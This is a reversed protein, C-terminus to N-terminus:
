WRRYWPSGPILIYFNSYDFLPNTNMNGIGTMGGEVNSYQVDGTDSMQPNNPATNGWIIFNMIQPSANIVEIGGGSIDANNGYLTNNSLSAMQTTASEESFAGSGDYNRPESYGRMTTNESSSFEISMAGGLPASNHVIVNNRIIPWHDYIDIGGSGGIVSAIIQNGTIVNNVIIYNLNGWNAPTIGGGWGLPATITNDAIMNHAIRIMDTGIGNTYIGGGLSYLSVYSSNITNNRIVNDEIICDRQDINWVYIGGGFANDNHVIHNGSINNYRITAGSYIACVGGGARGETTLTGSGGTITFGCLVSSTDEGNVFYVVSGSDPHSPSSGDILTNSIHTVDGDMLYLSAVTIAKGRFNINELYAGEQVLVTDGPGAM